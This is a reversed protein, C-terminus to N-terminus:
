RARIRPQRHWRLGHRTLTVFLYYYVIAAVAFGEVRFRYDQPFQYLALINGKTRPALIIVTALVTFTVALSLLPVTHFIPQVFLRTDVTLSVIPGLLQFNATSWM